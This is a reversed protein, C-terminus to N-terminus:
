TLPHYIRAGALLDALPYLSAHVDPARHATM